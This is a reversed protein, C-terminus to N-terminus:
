LAPTTRSQEPHYRGEGGLPWLDGGAGEPSSGRRRTSPASVRGNPALYETSGMEHLFLPWWRATHLSHTTQEHTLSGLLDGRTKANDAVRIFSRKSAALMGANCTLATQSPYPPVLSTTM